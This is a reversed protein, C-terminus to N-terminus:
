ALAPAGGLKALAAADRRTNPHDPGLAIEDIQLARELYARATAPEGRRSLGTALNYLISATTPHDSGVHAEAISLARLLHTEAEPEGLSQLAYGLNNLINALKPHDPGYHLEYVSAAFAFKDRAQARDGQKQICIGYNNIVEAVHPHEDGYATQDLTLAMEFYQMAVSEDGMQEFVRGLNNAIASLRPHSEGYRRSSMSLARDLAQQADLYQARKLLYRGADNLLTIADDTAVGLRDAHAAADLVHPLLEGCKRWSRVDASNFKFVYSLFEIAAKCWTMQEDLELRDRTVTAVLRHIVVGDPERRVLSYAGLAAMAKELTVPNRALSAVSDPLHASGDRLMKNSVSDPCLFSAFNLLGAASPSTTEVAQFALGWTMAVTHPYHTPAPGAQLLTAWETEFRTLYQEFSQHEGLIVASAQELALPLDGLAHALRDAAYESEDHRGTRQRLFRISEDRDLVTLPQSRGLTAVDASRTTILVHGKGSRPLYRAIETKSTVDDFVLLWDSRSGLTANVLDRVTDASANDSVARGLRSALKSLSEVLSSESEARVWWTIAYNARHRRAFEMAAQSKGVGGLGHVVQVGGASTFGAELDALFSERGTFHPLSVAPLNSLDASPRAAAAASYKAM